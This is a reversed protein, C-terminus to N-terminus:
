RIQFLSLDKKDICIYIHAKLYLTNKIRLYTYIVHYHEEEKKSLFTCLLRIVCEYM